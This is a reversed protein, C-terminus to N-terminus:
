LLASCCYQLAVYHSKNQLNENKKAKFYLWAVISGKGYGRFFGIVKLEVWLLLSNSYVVDFISFNNGVGFISNYFFM